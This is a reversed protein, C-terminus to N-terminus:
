RILVYRVVQISKGSGALAKAVLQLRGSLDEPIVFKGRWDAGSGALEVKEEGVELWCEEVPVYWHVAVPLEQGPRAV